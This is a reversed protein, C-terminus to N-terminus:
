PAFAPRQAWARLAEPPRLIPHPLTALLIRLVYQPPPGGSIICRREYENTQSDVTKARFVVIGPPLEM